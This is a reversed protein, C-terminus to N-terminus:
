ATAMSRDRWIASAALTINRAAFEPPTQEATIARRRPTGSAEWPTDLPEVMAVWAPPRIEIDTALKEAIAALLNDVLRSGSLPPPDATAAAVLEPHQAIQDVFGRLRTWDPENGATRTTPEALDALRTFSRVEDFSCSKGLAAAIKQITGWRPEEHGNEIRSITPYSVGALKALHRTSLGLVEREQRILSGVANM